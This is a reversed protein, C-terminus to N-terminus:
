SESRKEATIKEEKAPHQYLKLKLHELIAIVAKNIGIIIYRGSMIPIHSGQDICFGTDRNVSVELDRLRIELEKIRGEDWLITM